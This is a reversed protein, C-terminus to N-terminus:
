KTYKNLVFETLFSIVQLNTPRKDLCKGSLLFKKLIEPNTYEFSYDIASRINREVCSSNINNIAAITPYLYKTLSQINGNNCCCLYVADKLYKYGKHKRNFVFNRFSELLIDEFERSSMVEIKHKTANMNLQYAIDMLEQEINEASITKYYNDFSLYFPSQSNNKIMIVSPVYYFGKQCFSQVFLADLDNKTMDFFLIDPKLQVCRMIFSTISDCRILNIELNKCTAGLEAIIKQNSSSYFLANTTYNKM